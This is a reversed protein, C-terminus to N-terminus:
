SYGRVELARALRLSVSSRPSWIRDMGRHLRRFITCHVKSPVWASTETDRPVGLNSRM